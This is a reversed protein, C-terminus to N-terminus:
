PPPEDFWFGDEGPDVDIVQQVGSAIMSVGARGGWRGRCERGRSHDIAVAQEPRRGEVKSKASKTEEEGPLSGSGIFAQQKKTQSESRSACNREVKARGDPWPRKRSFCSAVCSSAVEAVGSEDQWGGCLDRRPQSPSAPHLNDSGGTETTGGGGPGLQQEELADVAPDADSKSIGWLTSCNRGDTRQLVAQCLRASHLGPSPYSNLSGESSAHRWRFMRSVGNWDCSSSSWTPSQDNEEVEGRRDQEVVGLVLENTLALACRMCLTEETQVEEEDSTQNVDENSSSRFHNSYNQRPKARGNSKQQKLGTGSARSGPDNGGCVHCNTQQETNVDLYTAVTGKDPPSACIDPTAIGMLRELLSKTKGPVTELPFLDPGPVGRDSPIASVYRPVPTGFETKGSSGSGAMFPRLSGRGDPIASFGKEETDARREVTSVGHKGQPSSDRSKQVTYMRYEQLGTRQQLKHLALVRLLLPELRRAERALDSASIKRTSFCSAFVDGPDMSFQSVRHNAEAEHQVKERYLCAFLVRQCTRLRLAKQGADVVERDIEAEKACLLRVVHLFIRRQERSLKDEDGREDGWSSFACRIQGQLQTLSSSSTMEADHASISANEGSYSFPISQDRLSVLCLSTSGDPSAGWPSPNLFYSGTFFPLPSSIAVNSTVEDTKPACRIYVCRALPGM